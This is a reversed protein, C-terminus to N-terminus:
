VWAKWEVQIRGGGGKNEGRQRKESSEKGRGRDTQGKKCGKRFESGRKSLGKILSETEFVLGHPIKKANLTAFPASM